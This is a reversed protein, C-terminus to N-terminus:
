KIEYRNGHRKSSSVPTAKIEGSIGLKSLHYRIQSRLMERDLNPNAKIAFDTLESSTAKGGIVNLLRQTYSPWTEREDKATKNDLNPTVIVADNNKAFAKLLFRVADLQKVIDQDLKSLLLNELSKLAEIQNNNTVM